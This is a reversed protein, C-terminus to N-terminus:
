LHVAPPCFLIETELKMARESAFDRSFNEFSLIEESSLFHFSKSQFQQTRRSRM